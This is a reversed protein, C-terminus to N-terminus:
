HGGVAAAGEVRFPDYKAWYLADQKKQRVGYWHEVEHHHGDEKGTKYMIVHRPKIPVLFKFVGFVILASFVYFRAIPIKQWIHRWSLMRLWEPTTFPRAPMRPHLKTEPIPDSPRALVLAAGKITGGTFKALDVIKGVVM